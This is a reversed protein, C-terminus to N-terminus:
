NTIQLDAIRCLNKAMNKTSRIVRLPVLCCKGCVKASLRRQRFFFIISFTIYIANYTYFYNLIFSVNQSHQVLMVGIAETIRSQINDYNKVMYFLSYDIEKFKPELFKDRNLGGKEFEELTNRVTRQFFNM